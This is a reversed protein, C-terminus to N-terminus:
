ARATGPGSLTATVLETDLYETLERLKGGDLRCVYCYTNNYGAGAKTTVRGRCEIVVHDGEAIIRDATNTYQDAFQAFLPTMLDKLVSEKGRYTGSWRTTGIITWCFDDAMAEAFPKSNGKSLENFIEEMLQKNQATRMVSLM